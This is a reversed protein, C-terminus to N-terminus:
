RGAASSIAEGTRAPASARGGRAALAYLAAVAAAYPIAMILWLRYDASVRVLFFYAAVNASLHAVVPPVVSGKAQHYLFNYLLSFLVVNAVFALAYAPGQFLPFVHWVAWAVGGILAAAVPRWRSELVRILYGRWGIEEGLAGVVAWALYPWFGDGLGAANLPAPGVLWGYLAFAVVVALAPLCAALLWPWSARLDLRFMRKFLDPIRRRDFVALCALAAVVPSVQPLFVGFILRMDMQWWTLLAALLIAVALYLVAKRVPHAFVPGYV